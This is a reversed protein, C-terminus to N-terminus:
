GAAVHRIQRNHTVTARINRAITDWGETMSPPKIVNQAASWLLEIDVTKSPRRAAAHRAKQYINVAQGLM